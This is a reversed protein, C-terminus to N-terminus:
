TAVSEVAGVKELSRRRRSAYGSLHLAALVALQTGAVRARLRRRRRRLKVGAQDWHYVVPQELGDNSTKEEPENWGGKKLRAPVRSRTHSVKGGNNYRM